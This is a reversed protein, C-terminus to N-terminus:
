PRIVAWGQRQKEVIHIVGTEVYDIKEVMQDRKLKFRTMSNECAVVKAGGGIADRVRNAVVADDKLMNIGQGFAVLMIESRVNKSAYNKKLNDVVNLAQNWTRTDGDSVQLVIRELAQEGPTSACGALLTAVACGAALLIWRMSLM